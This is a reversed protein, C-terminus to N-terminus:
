KISIWRDYQAQKIKVVDDIGMTKLTQVFKDFNSLPEAGTIFKAVMEERYTNIDAMLRSYSSSEEPTSMVSPFTSRYYEKIGQLRKISAEPMLIGSQESLAERTVIQPFRGYSGYSGLAMAPNPYKPNNTIEETYQPKGDVMTYTVGEIGYNFLLQGQESAFLYDLWKIALEPNKADKSIAFRNGDTAPNIEYFQDGHPGLPPVAVAWQADPFNKKMEKTYQDFRQAWIMFGGTLDGVVYAMVKDGHKTLLGEDILKEQWWKNMETLYDKAKPNTWTYEVKGQEDVAFWASKPTMGYAQAFKDLADIGDAVLPIEDAKGNGNPDGDRFALLMHYWDEITQPEKLNLKEVWDLRYGLAHVNFDSGAVSVVGPFAYISGDPATLTKKVDPNADLFAKTNPAHQDILDNLRLIIGDKAIKVPDDGQPLQMIDPLNSAAAIRTRMINSYDNFVAEFKIKVGTQKELEMMIPINDDNYSPGDAGMDIVAFSLTEGTASLRTDAVAEGTAEKNVAPASATATGAPQKNGTGCASIVCAMLVTLPLLLATARRLM